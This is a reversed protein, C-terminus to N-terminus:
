KFWEAAKSLEEDIRAFRKEERTMSSQKQAKAEKEMKKKLRALKAQCINCIGDSYTSCSLNKFRPTKAKSAAKEISADKLDWIKNCGTCIYHHHVPVKYACEYLTAGDTQHNYLLGCKVLLALTSYMTARSVHFRDPMMALIQDASYHGKMQMVVDLIAYREPTKRMGEQETLYRNLIDRPTEKQPGDVKKM